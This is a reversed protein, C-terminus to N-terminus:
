KPLSPCQPSGPPLRKEILLDGRPVTRYRALTPTIEVIEACFEYGIPTGTTENSETVKLCVTNGKLQVTAAAVVYKKYLSDIMCSRLTMDELYEHHDICSQGDEALTCWTGLLQSARPDSRSEAHVQGCVALLFFTSVILARM